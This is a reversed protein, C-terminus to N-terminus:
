RRGPGLKVKLGINVQNARYSDNNIRQYNGNVSVRDNIRYEAGVGKSKGRVFRGSADETNTGYNANVSLKPTISWSTKVNWVNFQDAGSLVHFVRANIVLSDGIYQDIGGTLFYVKGSDYNRNEGEVVLVTSGFSLPNAVFNTGLKFATKERFDPDYTAKASAYLYIWKNVKEVYEVRVSEDHLGDRQYRELGFVLTKYPDIRWVADLYFDRWPNSGDKFNTQAFSANVSFNLVSKELAQMDAIKKEIQARDKVLDLATDLVTQAKKFKWMSIYVDSLVVYAENETEELDIAEQLDPIAADIKMPDEEFAIKGLLIHGQYRGHIDTIGTLTHAIESAKKFDKNIFYIKAKKVLLIADEPKRALGLDLVFIADENKKQALLNSALADYADMYDPTQAISQRLLTESETLNGKAILVRGLIIKVDVYQPAKGLVSRLTAEAEDFKGLNYQTLGIYFGIDLNASDAAQAQVLLEMAGAFDGRERAELARKILEEVPAKVIVSSPLRTAHEQPLYSASLIGLLTLAFIKM